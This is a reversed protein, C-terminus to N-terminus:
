VSPLLTLIAGFWAFFAVALRLNGIKEVEDRCPVEADRQTFSTIFLYGFFINQTDSTFMLIILTIFAAGGILFHGWFRGFVTQAIRGGDTSGIPLLDLANILLSVFGAIAFPHMPVITSPDKTLLVGNGDLFSDILTYGLGSLQLFGLPLGPFYQSAEADMTTTLQLGVCLFILSFIMGTAPGAMAFDYLSSFSSPSNKLRNEFSLFPLTQSPLITPPTVKIKDKWAMTLHALEHAGQILAMPLLVMTLEDSFFSIDSNGGAAIVENAETLTKVVLENSGFTGVFWTFAIFLSALSVVNTFLPSINPRFDNTTIFLVPPDNIDNLDFDRVYSFQYKEKWEMPLADDLATILETSTEKNNTGRLIYGGTIKDTGGPAAANDLSFSNTEKIANLFTILDAESPGIIVGDEDQKRLVRPFLGEVLSDRKMQEEDLELTEVKFGKKALLDYIDDKEEGTKMNSTLSEKYLKQMLSPTLSYRNEYMTIILDTKFIVEQYTKYKNADDKEYYTAAKAFTDQLPVPLTELYLKAAEVDELSLGAPLPKTREDKQNNSIQLTKGDSNNNSVSSMATSSGINFKTQLSSAMEPDIRKALDLVQNQLKIREELVSKASSSSFIVTDKEKELRKLLADIKDLVYSAELQEAELRAVRAKEQLQKM